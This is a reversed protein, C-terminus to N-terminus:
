IYGFSFLRLIFLLIIGSFNFHRGQMDVESPQIFRYVYLRTVRRALKAALLAGGAGWKASTEMRALAEIAEITDNEEDKKVM